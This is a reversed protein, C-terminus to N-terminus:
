QPVAKKAMAELQLEGATKFALAVIEPPPDVRWHQLYEEGCDLREAPWMVGPDLTRLHEHIAQCRLCRKITEATGDFVTSVSCYLHGVHITEDCADCKHPKRAQRHREDYVDYTEEISHSM